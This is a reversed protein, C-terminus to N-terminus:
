HDRRVLPIGLLEAAVTAREPADGGAVYVLGTGDITYVAGVARFGVKLIGRGSARNGLDHGVWFRAVEPEHDIFARLLAPYIGRGRFDPSTVFDWLYRNAPPMSFELGLEGIGVQGAACWGIAAVRGNISGAVARNGVDFRRQCEATTLGSVAQIRAVDPEHDVTLGAAHSFEPLADGRWWAYFLGVPDDPLMEPTIERGTVSAAENRM